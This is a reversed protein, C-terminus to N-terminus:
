FLRNSREVNTKFKGMQLDSPRVRSPAVPTSNTGGRTSLVSIFYGRAFYKQERINVPFTYRSPVYNDGNGKQVCWHCRYNLNKDRHNDGIKKPCMKKVHGAIQMRNSRRHMATKRQDARLTQLRKTCSVNGRLDLVKKKKKKKKLIRDKKTLFVKPM